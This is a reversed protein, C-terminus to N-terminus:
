KRKSVLFTKAIFKFNNWVNFFSKKKDFLLTDRILNYKFKRHSIEYRFAMNAKQSIVKKLNKDPLDSDIIKFTNMLVLSHNGSNLTHTIGRDHKRYVCMGDKLFYGCGNKLILFLLPWDGVKCEFLWDPLSFSNRFLISATPIVFTNNFLDVSNFEFDGEANNMRQLRVDGMMMKLADHVVMSCFKNQELFDVQVQLKNDYIWYDDGECLATYEGKAERLAWIFNGMMGKNESHRTYKVRNFNKHDSFSRVVEQTRDPSCDDAIILEVEFDCKQMLVGNIAEALYAEHNYTIM